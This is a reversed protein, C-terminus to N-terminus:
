SPRVRNVVASLVQPTHRDSHDLMVILIPCM